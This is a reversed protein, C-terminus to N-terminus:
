RHQMMMGARERDGLAPEANAADAPMAAEAQPQEQRHEDEAAPFAGQVDVLLRLVPADVRAAMRATMRSVM